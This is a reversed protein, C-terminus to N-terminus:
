RLIGARNHFKTRYSVRRRRRSYFAKYSRPRRGFNVRRRRYRM